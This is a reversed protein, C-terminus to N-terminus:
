LVFMCINLIAEIKKLVVRQINLSNDVIIAFQKVIIEDWVLQLAAKFTQTSHFRKESFKQKLFSWESNTNLNPLNSSWVYKVWFDAFLEERKNFVTESYIWRRQFANHRASRNTSPQRRQNEPQPRYLDIADEGNCQYQDFNDSSASQNEDEM